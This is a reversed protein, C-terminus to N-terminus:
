DFTVVTGKDISNDSGLVFNSRQSIIRFSISKSKLDEIIQILNKFNIFSTDIFLLDIASVDINKIDDTEAINLSSFKSQLLNLTKTNNGLYAAKVIKKKVAGKFTLQFYKLGYWFVMGFQLVIEFILNKKFHKSYFLQMAGYFYNLYKVDKKTSEGKFHIIQSSGLYYNKYSHKILKYSLDIDEGYLFYDTDFGGVINYTKRKLFMFAGVLIEINGCKNESIQQAYYAHNKTKLGLMKYLTVLPTPINRKCEPLFHGTGDILKVGLAGLNKASKSFKLCNLFTDEAVITDPNLILIYEGKARDVGINNAKAFGLNKTNKILNVEPYNSLIIDCTADTSQNDVVIIEAKIDTTAKIVSQLCLELFYQVNYSVIVVSLQM